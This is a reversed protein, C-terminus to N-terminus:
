EAAVVDDNERHGCLQSLDVPAHAKHPTNTNGCRHVGHSRDVCVWTFECQALKM